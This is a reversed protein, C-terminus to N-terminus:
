SEGALYRALIDEDQNAMQEILLNLNVVIALAYSIGHSKKFQYGDASKLWVENRIRHWTANRLYSKSPRIIALVMALDEVSKPQLRNLLASYGNLHFLQDTVEEILLFDWVPEQALLADLHADDQVDEYFNVNLFDIKFFGYNEAIEHDLTSINSVPNRPIKQFYVGTAHKNVTNNRYIMASVHEIGALMEDRNCCDIDVDTTVKLTM